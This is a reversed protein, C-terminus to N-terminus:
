LLSTDRTIIDTFTQFESTNIEPLIARIKPVLHKINHAIVLSILRQIEMEEGSLCDVRRWSILGGTERDKGKNERHIEPDVQVKRGRCGPQSVSAQSHM